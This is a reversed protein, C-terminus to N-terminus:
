SIEWHNWAQEAAKAAPKDGTKVLGLIFSQELGSYGKHFKAPMLDVSKARPSHLDMDKMLVALGEQRNARPRDKRSIEM